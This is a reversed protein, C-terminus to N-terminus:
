CSVQYLRSFIVACVPHTFGLLVSFLAALLILPLDGRYFKFLKRQSTEKSSLSEDKPHSLSVATRTEEFKHATM